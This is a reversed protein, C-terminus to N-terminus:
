GNTQQHVHLNNGMEAMTLLATISMCLLPLIEKLDQNENKQIFVWFHLLDSPQEIKLKKIYLTELKEVEESVCTVKLMM